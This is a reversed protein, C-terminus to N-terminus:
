TVPPGSPPDNKKDSLQSFDTAEVPISEVPKDHPVPEGGKYVEASFEALSRGADAMDKMEKPTMPRDLDQYSKLQKEIIARIQGALIYNQTRNEGADGAVRVDLDGIKIIQSNPLLADLETSKSKKAM